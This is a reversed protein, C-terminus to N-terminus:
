RDDDLVIHHDAAVATHVFSRDDPATRDKGGRRHMVWVAFRCGEDMAAMYPMQYHRPQMGGDIIMEPQASM